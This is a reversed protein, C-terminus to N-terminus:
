KAKRIISVVVKYNDAIDQNELFSDINSGLEELDKKSRNDDVDIEDEDIKTKGEFLELKFTTKM